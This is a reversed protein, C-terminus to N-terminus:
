ITNRVADNVRESGLGALSGDALYMVALLHLQVSFRYYKECIVKLYYSFYIGQFVTREKLYRYTVDSAM